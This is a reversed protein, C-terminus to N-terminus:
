PREVAFRSGRRNHELAILTQCLHAEFWFVPQKRVGAARKGAVSQEGLEKGKRVLKKKDVHPTPLPRCADAELRPRLGNEVQIPGKRVEFLRDIRIGEAETARRNDVQELLSGFRNIQGL